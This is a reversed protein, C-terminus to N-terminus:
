PLPPIGSLALYDHLRAVTESNEKLTFGDVKYESKASMGDVAGMNVTRMLLDQEAEISPLLNQRRRASLAAVLGYGGWNSVSSVILRTTTTVCPIKVLSPTETIASALNGMGIENGGDGIGVTNPHSTFLHDIRANFRTIDDGRMNRYLGESTLGCREIAVLISPDTEALLQDAFAKSAEDDAIPFDVVRANPPAVARVVPAAYRDTVYVVKFGISELASGIVAAGPPGDTEAARANLIYFGTAIIATGPNDLILGAAKDCYQETLHPRLASVGRRDDRMDTIFMHGPSHTIMLPPRSEMAVTQPTVGCAWFVPVDGENIEAPDGLDPKSVDRIGIASPDGVHIPAGHVGPFRSTVQIARVVKDRAVPRMTVVLPGSFVGAPTTQVSTIFMAANTGREFHRVPIGAGVLASEFTFSCGLLFSVLDDQWFASIDEVEAVLDGHGYVRYKPLDSRLDAKPATEKPEVSGADVVELVPCPRPNRQCFLLFDFALDKPLIALNAQVYGPAMGSTPRVLRGERVLRRIQKPDNPVPSSDM